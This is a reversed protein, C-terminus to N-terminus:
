RRKCESFDSFMSFRASTVELAFCASQTFFIQSLCPQFIFHISSAWSCNKNCVDLALVEFTTLRTPLDEQANFNLDVFKCNDVLTKAHQTTWCGMTISSVSRLLHLCMKSFSLSPHLQVDFLPAQGSSNSLKTQTVQAGLKQSKAPHIGRNRVFVAFRHKKHCKRPLCLQCFQTSGTGWRFLTWPTRSGIGCTIRSVQSTNVRSAESGLIAITTGM